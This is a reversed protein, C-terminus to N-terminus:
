LAAEAPSPRNSEIDPHRPEADIRGAGISHLAREQNSLYWKKV